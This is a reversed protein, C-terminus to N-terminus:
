AAIGGSIAGGGRRCVPAAAFSVGVGALMSPGMYRTAGSFELRLATTGCRVVDHFGSRFDIEFCDVPCRERTQRIQAGSPQRVAPAATALINRSVREPRIAM